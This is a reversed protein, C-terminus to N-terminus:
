GIVVLRQRLARLIQTQEALEVLQVHLARKVAAALHGDLQFHVAFADLAQHANQADFGVVGFGVQAAQRRTVLDVRVQQAAYFDEPGVVDPTGINSVNRHATAKQVQDRYHVPEAAEHEAPFEGVGHLGAEAQRRQIGREAEALGFDPVGILARLKGRGVEECRQLLAADEILM